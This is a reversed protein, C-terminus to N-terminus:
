ATTSDAIIKHTQYKGLYNEIYNYLSRTERRIPDEEGAMADESPEPETADIYESIKVIAPALATQIAALREQHTPPTPQAM